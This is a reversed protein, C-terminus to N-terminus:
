KETVEICVSRDVSVTQVTQDVIIKEKTLTINPDAGDIQAPGAATMCIFKPPKTTKPGSCGSLILFGLILYKM